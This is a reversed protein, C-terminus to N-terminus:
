RVKVVRMPKVGQGDRRLFYVGAPLGEGIRDGKYIGMKRGSINFLAFRESSHGPISTFSVFPNPVVSFSLNSTLPQFSGQPNEWVGSGGDTTHLILGNYGVIWGNLSDTFFLDNLYSGPLIQWSWTAGADRTKFLTDQAGLIWGKLSDPIAFASYGNWISSWSGGRDTTKHVGYYHSGGPIFTHWSRWAYNPGGFRLKGYGSGNNVTDWTAGGNTTRKMYGRAILNFVAHNDTTVMGFLTDAFAIDCYMFSSSSDKLAWTQGGDTTQYLFGMGGDGAAIMSCVLWGKQSTTLVLNFLTYGLLTQPLLQWTAGGDSSRYLRDGAGAFGLLADRFRIPYYARVAPDVVRREWNAGGDTTRLIFNTDGAVWGTQANIFCLSRLNATTGSPQQVWGAGAASVLLLTLLLTGIFRYRRKAGVHPTLRFSGKKM